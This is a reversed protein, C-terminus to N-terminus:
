CANNMKRKDRTMVIKFIYISLVIFWKKQDVLRLQQNCKALVRFVAVSGIRAISVITPDSTVVIWVIVLAHYKM